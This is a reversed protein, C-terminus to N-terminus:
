TNEVKLLEHFVFQQDRLPPTYTPM